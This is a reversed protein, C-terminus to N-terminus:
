SGARATAFFRWVGALATLASAGLAGAAIIGLQEARLVGQLSAILGLALSLV